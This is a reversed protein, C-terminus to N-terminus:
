VYDFSWSFGRNFFAFVLLTNMFIHLHAFVSAAVRPTGYFPTREFKAFNLPFYRHWPTKEDIKRFKYSCRKKYFVESPQKQFMSWFLHM